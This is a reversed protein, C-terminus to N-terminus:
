KLDKLKGEIDGLEAELREIDSINVKKPKPISAKKVPVSAQRLKTKPLDRKVRAILKRVDDVETKLQTMLETKKVRLSKLDEYRKLFSIVAKSSELVTRRLEVPEQVGVYYAEKEEKPM